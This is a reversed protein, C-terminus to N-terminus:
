QSHLLAKITEKLGEELTWHPEYGFESARSIDALSDKVDGARSERYVPQIDKGTAEVIHKVLDNLSTKRGC